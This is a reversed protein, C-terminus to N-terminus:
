FHTLRSDDMILGAVFLATKLLLVNLEWLAPALVGNVNHRLLVRYRRCWLARLPFLVKILRM